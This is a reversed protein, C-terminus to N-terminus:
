RQRPGSAALSPLTHPQACPFAPSLNSQPPSGLDIPLAALARGGDCVVRSLAQPGFECAGLRPPRRFPVTMETM